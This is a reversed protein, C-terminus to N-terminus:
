AALKAQMRSLKLLSAVLQFHGNAIHGFTYRRVGQKGIRVACILLVLFPYLGSTM